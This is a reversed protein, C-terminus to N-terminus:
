TTEIYLITGSKRFTVGGKGSPGAPGTDGKEGRVLGFTLHKAGNKESLQASANGGAAVTTASVTCGAWENAESIAAQAADQAADVAEEAATVAANAKNVASQAQASAANAESIATNMESIKNNVQIVLSEFANDAM